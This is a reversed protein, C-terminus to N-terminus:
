IGNPTIFSAHFYSSYRSPHYISTHHISQHTIYAPLISIPTNCYDPMCVYLWTEDVLNRSMKTKFPFSVQCKGMKWVAVEVSHGNSITDFSLM